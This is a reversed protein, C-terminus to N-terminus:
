DDYFEGLLTELIAEDLKGAHFLDIMVDTPTLDFEELLDEFDNEELYEEVLDEIKKTTMM